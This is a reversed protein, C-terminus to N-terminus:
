LISIFRSLKLFTLNTFDGELEALDVNWAKKWGDQYWKWRGSEDFVDAFKEFINGCDGGTEEEVPEEGGEKGCNFRWAAKEIDLERDTLESCYQDVCIKIKDDYDCMFAIDKAPNQFFFM